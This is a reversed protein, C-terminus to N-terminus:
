RTYKREFKRRFDIILLGFTLAGGVIKIVYDIIEVKFDGAPLLPLFGAFSREFAKLWQTGNGFQASGVYNSTTSSSNDAVVANTSDSLFSFNPELIPNSQTAWFLTSLFLTIAGIAAPRSISEGYRSFHYYLGTLSFHRRFRSNEELRYTVEPYPSQDRILKKCLNVLRLKLDSISPVERYKRKLEMEKIFFRGADDYRLRFEYNERLNRYISLVLELTIMENRIPAKRKGRKRLSDEEMIEFGKKGGRWTVKDGFRIRTIDSDAFSVNSLSCNDFTVKNPHEFVTYHFHGEDKFENNLFDANNQFRTSM